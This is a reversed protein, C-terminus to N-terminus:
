TSNRGILEVHHLIASLATIKNDVATVDLGRMQARRVVGYGGYLDTIVVGIWGLDGHHGIRCTSAAGDVNSNVDVAITM